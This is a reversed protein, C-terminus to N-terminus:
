LTAEVLRRCGLRRAAGVVASVGLRAVASLVAAGLVAGTGVAGRQMLATTLM